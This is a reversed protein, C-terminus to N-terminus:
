LGEEKQGRVQYLIFFLLRGEYPFFIYDFFKIKAIENARQIIVNM